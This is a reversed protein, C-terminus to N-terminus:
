QNFGGIILGVIIFIKITNNCVVFVWPNTLSCSCLSVSLFGPPLRSDVMDLDNAGVQFFTFADPPLTRWLEKKRIKFLALFLHAAGIGKSRM